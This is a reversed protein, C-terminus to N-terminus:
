SKKTEIFQRTGNTETHSEQPKKCYMMRQKTKNFNEKFWRRLLEKVEYTVNNKTTWEYVCVTKKPTEELNKNRMIRLNM